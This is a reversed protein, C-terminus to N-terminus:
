AIKENVFRKLRSSDIVINTVNPEVIMGNSIITFQFRYEKERFFREPKILTMFRLKHMFEDLTRHNAETIHMERPVYMVTGWELMIGLNELDTHEPLIFEGTEKKERISELLVNAIETGFAEFHCANISWSDDYGSFIEDCEEINTVQSMCFIFCNLAERKIHIVTDRLVCTQPGARVIHVHTLSADLRGAVAHPAAGGIMMAGANLTNFWATDIEVDGELFVSFSYQGEGKDAIEANETVRYEALSGLRLTGNNINYEKQCSKALLM